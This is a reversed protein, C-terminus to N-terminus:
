KKNFDGAYILTLQDPQIYKKIVTNVDNTTLAKVSSELKTWEDLSYNYYLSGNILSLLANDNGLSTARSNLWSGVNSKLEEATFGNDVARKLEEAIATDVKEQVRPNFFAYVSWKAVQSDYPINQFSGAGYSIGEKERLRTPIRATLFGGQGLMENVMTMAPYDPNNRDMKFSIAGVVAANEKDPTVIKVKDASTAFFEPDIKTYPVKAKWDGFATAVLKAASADDIDGIITGVGNSAGLVNNYFDVLQDRTVANLDAIDEDPSSAYFPHGVPYHTTKRDIESFAVSQPENKNAEISAKNETITKALENEPFVSETLLQHLLTFTSELYEQYTSISVYLDQGGFGFNLQTKTQDLKDQIQEKTMTKTGSKLLSAVLSAVTSKNKLADLNGVPLRFSAMVKKGKIPKKLLAYKLGVPLTQVTMNKKINDISAEFAVNEETQVKGKYGETLKAIDEDLIEDPKVRKEDKTPYFVGYTRNNTRFYREAVRQVDALTLKEVADRYLFWLRYDGAGIIETLNITFYLTNNKMNDLNKLLKAKARDVDQQNYAITPIKDLESLFAKVGEDLSKDKPVEMNFFMFGPDRFGSQYSYVSSGIHSDILAKYLYGSPNSTLIESLADLPAADKDALAATHYVAAVLQTDGARRLEVSRQGDQAPEVTYTKELVRSPRPIPAFYEGIQALVKKEDFKGAVILTANDPQYYKQYFRKLRDAKVREIDEKSGITSSGYNHWLYATSLIRENLISGPDNEGIEFENRVVSFEKDLDSQLMTANIMRDAEMQLSWRVNEDNSPFIEYYNTRDYYTTGNANGGKDSLMKKIDGLNKTSKFLMHELLHAMGKEGYGEYRSGVHYVINVVVNSQTPDPLLLVQLGNNLKYEKIGEVATVYAPIEKVKAPAQVKKKQATAPLLALVTLLLLLTKKM